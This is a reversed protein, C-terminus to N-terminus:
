SSKEFLVLLIHINIYFVLTLILSPLLLPWEAGGPAESHTHTQLKSLEEGLLQVCVAGRTTRSLVRPLSLVLEVYVWFGTPSTMIIKM